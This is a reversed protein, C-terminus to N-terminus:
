LAIINDYYYDHNTSVFPTIMHCCYLEMNKVLSLSSDRYGYRLGMSPNRQGRVVEVEFGGSARSPSQVGGTSSGHHPSQHSLQQERQKREKLWHSARKKEINYMQITHVKEFLM